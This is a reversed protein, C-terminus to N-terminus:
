NGRASHSREDLREVMKYVATLGANQTEDVIKRELIAQETNNIRNDQEAEHIKMAVFGGLGMLILTGIQIIHGLNIEPNYKARM